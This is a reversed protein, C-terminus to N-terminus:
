TGGPGQLLSSLEENRRFYGKRWAFAAVGVLGTLAIGAALNPGQASLWSPKVEFSALSSGDDSGTLHARAIVAYTGIATSPVAYTAKYFGPSVLVATLTLNSGIPPILIVKLTGVSSPQGNLSTLVFISATDGPFYISGVRLSVSIGTPTPTVTFVTKVDLNSPFLSIAHILHTGVQAHPVDFRFDFSSSQPFLFGVLQDDFTIQLEIPYFQQSANPFGSGHVLVLTGVPGSSPTLTLVPPPLIIVQGDTLSNDDPTPDGSLFVTASLTYNGAPVGTTDWQVYYSFGFSSVPVFLGKQTVAVKGGYYFTLDITSPDTGLNVIDAELSIRQGSIAVAPYPHVFTLAVDHQPRPFVRVTVSQSGTLGSTDRVTLIVTYNGPSVYVHDVIASPLDFLIYGDGFSWTWSVIAGDPDLSRTGNFLVHQGVVPTQPTFTFSATPSEDPAVVQLQAVAVNNLPNADLPDSVSAVIQYTGLALSTTNMSFTYTVPNGPTVSQKTLNVLTVNQLGSVLGRIITLNYIETTTGFNTVQVLLSVTQGQFVKISSLSLSIGVDHYAPPTSPNIMLRITRMGQFGSDIDFVILRISFNGVFFTTSGGYSSSFDHTIIPSFSTANANVSKDGFDWVYRLIGHNAANLNDPDFSSSADFTVINGQSPNSPSFTFSSVPGARHTSSRPVNSFYGDQTKVDFAVFNPGVLRTWNPTGSNCNKCFAYPPQAFNSPNNMPAALVLPSVGGAKVVKFTISVLTGSGSVLSGTNVVALRLSGNGNFEVVAFPFQFLGTPGGKLDYNTVQIYSEDFYLALEYGNFPQANTVNIQVSFISGVALSPDTINWNSYQSSWVGIIPLSSPPPPPPPSSGVTLTYFTTRTLGSTTNGIIPISYTGPTTSASTFITMSSAFLPLGVTKNFSISVGAVTSAARLSVSQPIGSVLTVAATSYTLGGATVFGQTPNLFLSYDFVGPAVSISAFGTEQIGSASAAGTEQGVVKISFNGTSQFAHTTSVTAGGSVLGTTGDGFDIKYNFRTSRL